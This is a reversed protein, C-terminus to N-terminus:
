RGGDRRQVAGDLAADPACRLQACCLLSIHASPLVGHKSHVAAACSQLVGSCAGGSVVRENSHSSDAATGGSATLHVLSCRRQGGMCGERRPFGSRHPSRSNTVATM